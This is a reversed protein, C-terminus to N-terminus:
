IKYTTKIRTFEKQVEENWLKNALLKRYENGLDNSTVKHDKADKEIRALVEAVSETKPFLGASPIPKPEEKPEAKPQPQPTPTIIDETPQKKVSKKPEEKKENEGLDEPLDEGAYIYLGLGFMAVNKTLCRMITKNIDFMTAAAVGEEDWCRKAKNWVKATYPETRMARNKNDMVPLWMEKTQGEITVTTYCMIGLEKDVFYPRADADKWISYSADPFKKCVETWAWAWSLYTLGNRKETLCNKKETHGNVDVQNLTSFVSQKQEEM